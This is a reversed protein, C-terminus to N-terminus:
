RDGLAIHRKNHCSRCLSRLNNEDHTGGRSLPLIHHVEAASTLRGSELCDECLPHAQIYRARIKPWIGHYQKVMNPDRSYKDYKRNESARHEDCYRGSTLKPCGPFSCPKLPKYPM